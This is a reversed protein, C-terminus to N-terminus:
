PWWPVSWWREWRGTWRLGLRLRRSGPLRGSVWSPGVRPVLGGDESRFRLDVALLHELVPGPLAEDRALAQVFAWGDALPGGKTPLPTTRAFADFRAAFREGLARAVPPWARAVAQRRKSVLARAAAEVDEPDFGEPAASREMLARVLAEQAAGLRRRADAPM